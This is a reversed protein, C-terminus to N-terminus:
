TTKPLMAQVCYMLHLRNSSCGVPTARLTTQRDTHQACRHAWCFRSFQDLHPKPCNPASEPPGFSDHILQPQSGARSHAINPTIQGMSFYQSDAATYAAFHIM